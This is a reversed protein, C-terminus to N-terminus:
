QLVWSLKVKSASQLPDKQGRVPLWSNGCMQYNEEPTCKLNSQIYGHPSIFGMLDLLNTHDWHSLNYIWKTWLLVASGLPCSVPFGTLKVRSHGIQPTGATDGSLHAMIQWSSDNRIQCAATFHFPFRWASTAATDSFSSHVRWIVMLSHSHFYDMPVLPVKKEPFFCMHIYASISTIYDSEPQCWNPTTHKSPHLVVFSGELIKLSGKPIVAWVHGCWSVASIEYWSSLLESLTLKVPPWFSSGDCWTSQTDRRTALGCNPQQSKECVVPPTPYM